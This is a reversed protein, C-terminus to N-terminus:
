VRLRIPEPLALVPDAPVGIGCWPSIATNAGIGLALTLIAAAAFVPSRRLTRFAYRLDNIAQAL